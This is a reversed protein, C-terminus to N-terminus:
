GIWTGLGAQRMWHQWSPEHLLSLRQLYGPLDIRWDQKLRNAAQILASRHTLGAMASGALAIINGRNPVNLRAVQEGFVSDLSRFQAALKAKQASWLNLVVVSEPALRQACLEPFGKDCTASSPGEGDFADVLIADYYVPNAGPQALFEAADGTHLCLRQDPCLGFFQKAVAIVAPRLEVADICTTPFHHHIFKALSGGGLGLMLVRKPAPQFLAFTLMAETYTLALALPDNLYVASQVTNSGLHLCRRGGQERVEIRGYDDHDQFILKGQSDQIM